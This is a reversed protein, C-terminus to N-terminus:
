TPYSRYAPFVRWWTGDPEKFVVGSPAMVVVSAPSGVINVPPQVFSGPIASVNVTGTTGSVAEFISGSIGAVNVSSVSGLVTENIIGSLAASNVSSSTGIVNILLSGSAAASNVNSVVGTMLETIINDSQGSVNVSSATGPVAETILNDSQGSVNINPTAGPVLASVTNDSQGFVSINATTGPTFVGAYSTVTQPRLAIFSANFMMSPPLLPLEPFPPTFTQYITISNDVQGAVNVNAPAASVNINSVPVTPYIQQRHQYNKQWIQGPFSELQPIYTPFTVPGMYGTNTAGIDDYWFPGYNAVSANTGFTVRTIQDFTNANSNITETAVTSEINTFIKLEVRGGTSNGYVFGELRIWQGPSITTASNVLTAGSSDLLRFGGTTLLNVGACLNGGNFLSLVRSTAAPLAQALFNTRFWVTPSVPFTDWRYFVAAAAGGTSIKVASIGHAVFTGDSIVAAGAGINITDIPNGSVGGSNATTVTTGTPIGDFNNVRTFPPSQNQQITQPHRFARSWTQSPVIPASASPPIPGPLFVAVVGSQDTPANSSYTWAPAYSLTSGSTPSSQESVVFHGFHSSPEPTFDNTWSGGPAGWTITQSVITNGNSQSGLAFEGSATVNGATTITEPSTTGGTGGNGTDAVPTTGGSDNLEYLACVVSTHTGSVNTNFSPAADGGTAAKTWIASVCHTSNGEYIKTWGTTGGAQSTPGAGSSGFGGVIAVLLNPTSRNQGTGWTGAAPDASGATPSAPTGVSTISM